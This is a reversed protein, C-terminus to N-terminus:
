CLILTLTQALAISPILTLTLIPTFNLAPALTLTLVSRRIQIWPDNESGRSCSRCTASGGARARARSQEAPLQPRSEEPNREVEQDRRRM